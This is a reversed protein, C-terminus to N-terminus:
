NGTPPVRATRQRPGASWLAWGAVSIESAEGHPDFASRHPQYRAVVGHAARAVREVGMTKLDRKPITSTKHPASTSQPASGPVAPSSAAPPLVELATCPPAILLALPSAPAAALPAGPEAPCGSLAPELPALPELPAPAMAPTAVLPPAALLLPPALAPPVLPPAALPPVALPPPLDPLPPLAPAVKLTHV